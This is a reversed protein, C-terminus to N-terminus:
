NGLWNDLRSKVSARVALQDTFITPQGTIGTTHHLQHQRVQLRARHPHRPLESVAPDPRSAYDGLHPGKALFNSVM